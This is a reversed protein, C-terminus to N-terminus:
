NLPNYKTKKVRFGAIQDILIYIIYNDNDKWLTCVLYNDKVEKLYFTDGFDVTVAYDKLTFTIRHDIFERFDDAKFSAGQGFTTTSLLALM